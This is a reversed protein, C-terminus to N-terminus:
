TLKDLKKTFREVARHIHKLAKAEELDIMGDTKKAALQCSAEWTKAYAKMQQVQAMIYDNM